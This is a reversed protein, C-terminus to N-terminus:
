ILGRLPRHKRRSPLASAAMKDRRPAADAAGTADGSHQVPGARREAVLPWGRPGRRYRGPGAAGGAPRLGSCFSVFFVDLVLGTEVASGM